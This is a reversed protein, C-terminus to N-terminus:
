TDRHGRGARSRTPAGRRPEYRLVGANGFEHFRIAKMPAGATGQSPGPESRGSIGCAVLGTIGGALLSAVVWPAMGNGSLRYLRM